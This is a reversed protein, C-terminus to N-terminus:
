QNKLFIKGRECDKDILPTTLRFEKEYAWKSYKYQYENNETLLRGEILSYTLPENQYIVNGFGVRLSKVLEITDFGICVGYGNDGYSAWMTENKPDTTASFVGISDYLNGERIERFRDDFWKKPNSKIIDLQNECVIEFEKSNAPINKYAKKAYKRINEYFLPHDVEEFNVKDPARIDFPDNFSKPSAFWITNKTLIEKHLNNQWNRYKYIVLPVKARVENEIESFDNFIKLM